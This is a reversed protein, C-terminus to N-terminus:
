IFLCHDAGSTRLRRNEKTRARKIGKSKVQSLNPTKRLGRTIQWFLSRKEPFAHFKPHIFVMLM